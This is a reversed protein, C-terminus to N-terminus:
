LSSSIPSYIPPNDQRLGMTRCPRPDDNPVSTYQGLFWDPYMEADKEAREKTEYLASRDMTNPAFFAWPNM